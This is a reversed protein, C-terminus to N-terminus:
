CLDRVQDQMDKIEEPGAHQLLSRLARQEEATLLRESM